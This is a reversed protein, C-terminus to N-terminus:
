TASATISRISRPRRRTISSALSTTAMRSASTLKEDNATAACRTHRAADDAYIKSAGTCFMAVLQCYGDCAKGCVGDGGPGAAACKTTDTAALSAEHARCGLTNGSTDAATGVPFAKCAALCNDNSTYQQHTNAGNPGSDGKTGDGGTCNKM